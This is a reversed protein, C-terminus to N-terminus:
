ECPQRTAIRSWTLRCPTLGSVPELSSRKPGRKGSMVAPRRDRTGRRSDGFSSRFLIARERVFANVGRKGTGTVFRGRLNPVQAHDARIQDAHGGDRFGDGRAMASYADEPNGADGVHGGPNEILREVMAFNQLGGLADFAVENRQQFQREAWRRPSRRSGRLRDSVRLLSASPVFGDDNRAVVLQQDPKVKESPRLTLSCSASQPVGCFLGAFVGM